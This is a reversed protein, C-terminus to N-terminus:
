RGRRWQKNWGYTIANALGVFQTSAQLGMLVRSNAAANHGSSQLFRSTIGPIWLIVYLMPYGNLLLMRRVEREMRQSRQRIEDNAFSAYSTSNSKSTNPQTSRPCTRKTRGNSMSPQAGVEDAENEPEDILMSKMHRKFYWYIYAYILVTIFFVALRWGHTLAYRLDTRDAAIWCWNNGVPVMVGLATAITGTILPIIWVSVCVFVIRWGSIKGPQTKQAVVLLTSVGIALISFDTAQVSVQGIWGNFRCAAGPYSARDRIYIAGSITNNVSNIFDSLALNFILGHRFSRQNKNFVVFCGLVCATAMFSLVSGALTAAAIAEDYAM